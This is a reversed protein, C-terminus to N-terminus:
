LFKQVLVRLLMMYLFLDSKIKLALKFFLQQLYLLHVARPCMSAVDTDVSGIIIRKPANMETAKAVHFLIRSDAEELDSSYSDLKVHKNFNVRIAKTGYRGAIAYTNTWKEIKRQM